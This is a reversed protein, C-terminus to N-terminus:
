ANMNEWASGGGGGGPVLVVVIRQVAVQVLHDGTADERELAGHIDRCAHIEHVVTPAEAEESRGVEGPDEAVQANRRDDPQIAGLVFGTHTGLTQTTQQPSHTCRHHQKMQAM